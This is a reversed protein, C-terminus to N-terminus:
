SFKISSWSIFVINVEAEQCVLDDYAEDILKLNFLLRDSRSALIDWVVKGAELNELIDADSPKEAQVINLM